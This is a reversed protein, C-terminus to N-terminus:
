KEKIEPVGADTYTDGVDSTTTTYKGHTPNFPHTMEGVTAFVEDTKKVVARKEPSTRIELGLYDCVRVFDDKLATVYGVTAAYDAYKVNSAHSAHSSDMRHSVLEDRVSDLTKANKDVQGIIDWLTDVYAELQLVRSNMVNMRRNFECRTIM